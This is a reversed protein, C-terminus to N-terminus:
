AFQQLGGRSKSIMTMTRDGISSFLLELDLIYGRTGRAAQVVEEYGNKYLVSVDEGQFGHSTCGFLIEDKLKM